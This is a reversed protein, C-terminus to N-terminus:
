IFKFTQLRMEKVSSLTLVILPLLVSSTLNRKAILGGVEQSSRLSHKQCGEKM